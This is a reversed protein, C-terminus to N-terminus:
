EEFFLSMWHLKIDKDSTQLFNYCEWFIRKRKAQQCELKNSNNNSKNNNNHSHWSLWIMTTGFDDRTATMMLMWIRIWIWIPYWGWSAFRPYRAMSCALKAIKRAKRASVGMVCAISVITDRKRGGSHWASAGHVGIPGCTLEITLINWCMRLWGGFTDVNLALRRHMRLADDHRFYALM